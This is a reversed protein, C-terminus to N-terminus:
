RGKGEGREKWTVQKQRRETERHTKKTEHRVTQGMRGERGDRRGKRGREGGGESM